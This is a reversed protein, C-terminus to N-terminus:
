PAPPEGHPQGETRPYEGTELVQKVRMMLEKVGQAAVANGSSVARRVVPNTGPQYAITLRVEVGNREPVERLRISGRAELRSEPLSQWVILTNEQIDTLRIYWEPHASSPVDLEVCWNSGHDDLAEVSRVRNIYLPFNTFDRLFQFIAAVPRQITVAKEIVLYGQGGFTESVQEAVQQVTPKGTVVLYGGVAVSLLRLPMPLKFGLLAVAGGVVRTLRPDHTYGLSERYSQPPYEGHINRDSTM